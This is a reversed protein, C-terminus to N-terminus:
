MTAPPLDDDFHADVAEANLESGKFPHLNGLIPIRMKEEQSMANYAEPSFNEKVMHSDGYSSSQLERAFLNLYVGKGGIHVAKNEETPIAIYKKEAITVFRAGRLRALDIKISYNM